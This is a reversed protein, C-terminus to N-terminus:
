NVEKFNGQMANQYTEPNNNKLDVREQYTMANWKKSSVTADGDGQATNGEVSKHIDQVKELTPLDISDSDDMITSLLKNYAKEYDM